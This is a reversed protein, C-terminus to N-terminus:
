HIHTEPFDLLFGFSLYCRDSRLTKSFFFYQSSTIDWDKTDSDLVCIEHMLRESVSMCVTRYLAMVLKELPPRWLMYHPRPKILNWLSLAYTKWSGMPPKQSLLLQIPRLPVSFQTTISLPLAQLISVMVSAWLYSSNYLLLQGRKHMCGWSENKEKLRTKNVALDPMM